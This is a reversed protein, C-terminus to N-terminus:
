GGVRKIDASPSARDQGFGGLYPVRVRYNLHAVLRGTEYLPWNFGKKEVTSDANQVWPGQLLSLIADDRMEVGLRNLAARFTAAYAGGAHATDIMEALAASMADAYESQHNDAASRLSPREPITVTGFENFFLVQALEEDDFVGVEVAIEGTAMGELMEVIGRYGLDRDTYRLGAYDLSM